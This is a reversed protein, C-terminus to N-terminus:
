WPIRQQKERLRPRYWWCGVSLGESLACLVLTFKSYLGDSPVALFGMLAQRILLGATAAPLLWVTMLSLSRALWTQSTAIWPTDWGPDDPKVNASFHVLYALFYLQVSVLLLIGWRTIQDSPFKIGFAEFADSSKSAEQYLQRSLVDLDEGFRGTAAVWLDPFSEAFSRPQPAANPRYSLVLGDDVLKPSLVYAFYSGVEAVARESDDELTLKPFSGALPNCNGDLVPNLDEVGYYEQYTAGPKGDLVTFERFELPQRQVVVHLTREVSKVSFAFVPLINWFDALDQLTAPRLDSMPTIRQGSRSYHGNPFCVYLTDASHPIQIHTLLNPPSVVDFRTGAAGKSLEVDSSGAPRFGSVIQSSDNTPWRSILRTVSAMQSAARRSDYTPSLSVILLGVCVTILAFHVTRLHEVFDKSWHPSSSDKFGTAL